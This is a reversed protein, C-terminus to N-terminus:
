GDQEMSTKFRILLYFLMLQWYICFVVIWTTFFSYSNILLPSSPITLLFSFLWVILKWVLTTLALFLTPMLTLWVFLKHEVIMQMTQYPHLLLGLAFRGLAYFFSVIWDIM